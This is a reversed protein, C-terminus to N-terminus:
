PLAGDAIWQMIARLDPYSISEGGLPMADGLVGRLPADPDEAERLLKHVLFSESPARPTVMAFGTDRLATAGVLQPYALTADRLDLRQGALDEPDLHCSCQAREPDFVAGPAFLDRLTSPESAVPDLPDLPDMPDVPNGTDMPEPEATTTTFELFYAAAGDTGTVWGAEDTDFTEGNWGVTTPDLVLRYRVGPVLEAKPRIALVSGPCWPTEDEEAPGGGPSLWAVLEVTLETDVVINGSGLRADTSATARPDVLGSLCLDIRLDTAVDFDGAAPHTAEVRL